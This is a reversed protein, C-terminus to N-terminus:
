TQPQELFEKLEKIEQDKMLEIIHEADWNDVVKILEKVVKALSMLTHIVFPRYDDRKLNHLPNTLNVINLTANELQISDKIEPNADLTNLPDVYILQVKGDEQKRVLLGACCIHNRCIPVILPTSINSGINTWDTLVTYDSPKEPKLFSILQDETYEDEEINNNLDIGYWDQIGMKIFNIVDKNKTYALVSRNIGKIKNLWIKVVTAEAQILIKAQAENVVRNDYQYACPLYDEYLQNLRSARKISHRPRMPMLGFFQGWTIHNNIKLDLLMQHHIFAAPNRSPECVFLLYTITVLLHIDAKTLSNGTTKKCTVVETFDNRLIRRILYAAKINGLKKDLPYLFSLIGDYSIWNETNFKKNKRIFVIHQQVYNNFNGTFLYKSTVNVTRGKKTGFSTESNYGRAKSLGDQPFATQLEQIARQSNYYIFRAVLLMSAGGGTTDANMFDEISIKEDSIEGETREVQSFSNQVQQSLYLTTVPDSVLLQIALAHCIFSLRGSDLKSAQLYKQKKRFEAWSKSVCYEAENANQKQSHNSDM